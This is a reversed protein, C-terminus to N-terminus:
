EDSGFGGPQGGIIILDGVLVAQGHAGTRGIDAEPHGANESGMVAAIQGNILDDIFQGIGHGGDVSQFAM